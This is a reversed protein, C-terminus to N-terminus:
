TSLDCGYDVNEELSNEEDRVDRKGWNGLWIWGLGRQFEKAKQVM